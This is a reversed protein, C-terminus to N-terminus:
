QINNDKARQAFTQADATTFRHTLEFFKQRFYAGYHGHVDIAQTNHSTM